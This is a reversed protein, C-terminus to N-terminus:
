VIYAVIVTIDDVKGGSLDYGAQRATESFPTNRGEDTAIYQAIEALIWALQTPTLGQEKGHSVVEAIEHPHMNDFLGDTAAVVIDGSRVEM